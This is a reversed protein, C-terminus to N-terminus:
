TDGPGLMKELEDALNRLDRARARIQERQEEGKVFGDEDLPDSPPLMWYNDTYGLRQLLPSYNIELTEAIKRITVESPVYPDGSEYRGAEVRGFTRDNVGAAKAAAARKWGRRLRAEKIQQGM